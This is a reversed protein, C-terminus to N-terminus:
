KRVGPFMIIKASDEPELPEHAPHEHYIVQRLDRQDVMQRCNPCPYFNDEERLETGDRRGPIPPGLDSLKTM